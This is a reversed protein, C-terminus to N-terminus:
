CRSAPSRRRRAQQGLLLRGSPAVRIATIRPDDEGETFWTKLMPEWLTKIKKRDRASRRRARHATLFGSHESAQFFLRVSPAEAIERNKHSDSASLFWLHGAEDVEQVSMPRTAGSDGVSM